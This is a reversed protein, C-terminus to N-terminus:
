AVCAPVYPTFSKVGGDWTRQKCFEKKIFFLLLYHMQLALQDIQIM